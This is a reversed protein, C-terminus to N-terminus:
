AARRGASRLRRRERADSDEPCSEDSDLQFRNRGPERRARTWGARRLGWPGPRAAPWLNDDSRPGGTRCTDLSGCGIKPRHVMRLGGAPSSSIGCRGERQPALGAPTGWPQQDGDAARPHHTKARARGEDMLRGDRARRARGPGVALASARQGGVRGARAAYRGLLRGSLGGRRFGHRGGLCSPYPVPHERLVAWQKDIILKGSTVPDFGHTEPLVQNKWTFGPEQGNLYGRAVEEPARARDDRLQRRSAGRVPPERTPEYLLLSQLSLKSAERTARGSWPRKPALVRAHPGAQRPRYRCSTKSRTRDIALAESMECALPSAPAQLGSGAPVRRVLSPLPDINLFSKSSIVSLHSQSRRPLRRYVTGLDVRGPASLYRALEAPELGWSLRRRSVARAIDSSEM